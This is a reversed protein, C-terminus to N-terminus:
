VKGHTQSLSYSMDLSEQHNYKGLQSLIFLLFITSLTSPIASCCTGSGDPAAETTAGPMMGPGGNCSPGTCTCSEGAAKPTFGAPTCPSGTLNAENCGRNFNTGDYTIFCETAAACTGAPNTAADVTACATCNFCTEPAAEVEVITFVSVWVIVNLLIFAPSNLKRGM